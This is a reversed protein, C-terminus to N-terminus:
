SVSPRLGDTDVDTARLHEADHEVRVAVDHAFSRRADGCAPSSANTSVAAPRRRRDRSRRVTRDAHARGAEDVLVSMEPIRRVQRQDAVRRQAVRELPCRTADDHEVVVGVRGRDAFAGVAGRPVDVVDQEHREPGADAASHQEVPADITARMVEATLDTVEGDLAVPRDARAALAPVPLCDRRPVREPPHRALHDRRAATARDDGRGAAVGARHGAFM